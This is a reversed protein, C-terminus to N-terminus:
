CEWNGLVGTWNPQTLSALFDNSKSVWKPDFYARQSCTFSESQYQLVHPNARPDCNMCAM